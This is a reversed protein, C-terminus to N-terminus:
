HTSQNVRHSVAEASDVRESYRNTLYAIHRSYSRERLSGYLLLIKPPHRPMEPSVLADVDISNLQKPDINPLSDFTAIDSM